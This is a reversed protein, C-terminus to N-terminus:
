LSSCGPIVVNQELRGDFGLVDIGVYALLLNLAAASGGGVLFWPMRSLHKSVLPPVMGRIPHRKTPAM